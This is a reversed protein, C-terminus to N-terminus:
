NTRYRSVLRVHRAHPDGHRRSQDRRHLRRHPPRRPVPALNAPRGRVRCVDEARAARQGRARDLLPRAPGTAELRGLSGGNRPDWLSGESTVLVEGNPSIAFLGPRADISAVKGDDTRWIDGDSGVLYEGDPTFRLPTAETGAGELRTGVASRNLDWLEIADRRVVALTMGDPAFAPESPTPFRGLDLLIEGPSFGHILVQNQGASRRFLATLRGDPSTALLDGPRWGEMEWHEVVGGNQTDIQSLSGDEQLVTLVSRSSFWMRHPVWDGEMRRRREGSTPDLIQLGGLADAVVLTNGDPSLAMQDLLEPETEALLRGKPLAIAIQGRRM